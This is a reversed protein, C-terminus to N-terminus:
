KLYFKTDDDCIKQLSLLLSKYCRFSNQHELSWILPKLAKNPFISQLIEVVLYKINENCDSVLLNELNNFIEDSKPDFRRLIKLASKRGEIGEFKEIQDMLTSIAKSRSIFNKQFDSYIREPSTIM